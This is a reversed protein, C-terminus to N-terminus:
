KTVMGIYVPFEFSSDKIGRIWESKAKVDDWLIQDMGHSVDHVRNPITGLRMLLEGKADSESEALILHFAQGSKCSYLKIKNIGLPDAKILEDVAKFDIEANKLTELNGDLGVGNQSAWYIAYALKPEGWQIADNLLRNLTM